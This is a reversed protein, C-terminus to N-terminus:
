EPLKGKGKAEVPDERAVLWHQKGAKILLDATAQSCQIRGKMGHSEMRSATNVTDGFLQFRSRDSVPMHQHRPFASLSFSLATYTAASTVRTNVWSKNAVYLVYGRLVGATVPGSHMGFRMSLAGTDPGLTTELDRVIKRMRFACDCAFRAMICAHDKQAEPVGTVAVSLSLSLSLSFLATLGM